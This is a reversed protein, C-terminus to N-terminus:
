PRTQVAVGLAGPGVHATIVTSLVATRVHVEGPIDAAELAAHVRRAGDGAEALTAEPHLVVIEIVADASRERYEACSETVLAVLRDEARANTRVRALPVVAGERLGLVPTISLARGLLSAARGIRGGRRLYELDEPIFFTRTEASCWDEVEGAVAAAQLGAALGAVAVAVAGALGASTTRSDVLHVTLEPHEAAASAASGHTGSLVAPLTLVIADAAGAEAVGRLAASFDEPSPLSTQVRAGGRMASCLEAPTWDSDRRLEEGVEVSLDVVRFLGGLAADFEARQEVSLQATSDVLVATSM